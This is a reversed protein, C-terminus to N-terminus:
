HFALHWVLTATSGVLISRFFANCGIAPNLPSASGTLTVTNGTTPTPGGNYDHGTMTAAITFTCYTTTGSCSKFDARLSVNQTFTDTSPDLAGTSTVNSGSLILLAPTGAANAEIPDWGSYATSGTIHTAGTADNVHTVVAPSGSGPPGCVPPGGITIWNSWHALLQASVTATVLTTAAPAPTATAVVSGLAILVAVIMRNGHTRNM